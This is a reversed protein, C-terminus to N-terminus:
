TALQGKRYMSRIKGVYNVVTGPAILFESGLDNAREATLTYKKSDLMERNNLMHATMAAFAGRSRRANRVTTSTRMARIVGVHKIDGVPICVTEEAVPKDGEYVLSLFDLTGVLKGLDAKRRFANQAADAVKETTSFTNVSGATDKINLTVTKM